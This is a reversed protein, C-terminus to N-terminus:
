KIYFAKGTISMILGSGESLKSLSLSEISILRSSTKLDQLLAVLNMFAGEVNFTFLIDSPKGVGSENKVELVLPQIQLASISAEHRGAAQELTQILTKLNASDPIATSIATKITQDLHDYNQKGITLDNAKQNIKELVATSDALKKQLILITEITPRIAFLIFIVMVVLTFITSGYTRVIPLKGIPKIYTFYRSYIQSQPKM